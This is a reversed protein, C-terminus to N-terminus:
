KEVLSHYMHESWTEVIVSFVVRPSFESSQFSSILAVSRGVFIYVCKVLVFLILYRLVVKLDM